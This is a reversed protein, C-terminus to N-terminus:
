KSLYLKKLSVLGEFTNGDIKKIQNNSLVLRTLKNLNVFDPKAIEKIQCNGANYDILNPLVTSVRFPLYLNKDNGYMFLGQTSNMAKVDASSSVNSEVVFGLSTIGVSNDLFCTRIDGGVDVFYLPEIGVCRIKKIEEDVPLSSALALCLVLILSLRYAFFTSEYNLFNKPEFSLAYNLM